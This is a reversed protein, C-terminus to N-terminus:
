GGTKGNKAIHIALALYKPTSADPAISYQGGSPDYTIEPTVVQTDDTIIVANAGLSQAKQQVAELLQAKTLGASGTAVIRAIAVYSGAPPESLVEIYPEPPYGGHGALYQVQIAGPDSACGALLALLVLVIIGSPM